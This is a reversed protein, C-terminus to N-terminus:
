VKQANDLQGQIASQLARICQKPVRKAHGCIGSADMRVDHRIGTRLHCVEVVAFSNQETTAIYASTISYNAPMCKDLEMIQEPTM